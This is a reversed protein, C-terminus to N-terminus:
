EYVYKHIPLGAACINHSPVMGNGSCTINERTYYRTTEQTTLRGSLSLIPAGREARRERERDRERVVTYLICLGSYVITSRM